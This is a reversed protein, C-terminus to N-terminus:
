EQFMSCHLIFCWLKILYQKITNWDGALIFFLIDTMAWNTFFRSQRCHLLDPNLEQTLFIGRSFSIAVWELIRAQLIGHVYSGLPCNWPTVCTLCSKPVLGGISFLVRTFLQSMPFSGSAPLSQPCSSFPVVSSSITPHCWRSLPRSNPYIRPTSSPCPLRAHQSEHPQFSNSVVSHSFQVSSFAIINVLQYWSM